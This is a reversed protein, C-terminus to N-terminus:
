MDTPRLSCPQSPQSQVSVIIFNTGINNWRVPAFCPVSMLGAPLTNAAEAAPYRPPNADADVCASSQVHGDFMWGEPPAAFTVTIGDDKNCASCRCCGCCPPAPPPLPPTQRRPTGSEGPAAPPPVGAPPPAGPCRACGGSRPSHGTERRTGCPPCEVQKLVYRSILYPLLKSFCFFNSYM